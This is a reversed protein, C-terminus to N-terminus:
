YAPYARMPVPGHETSAMSRVVRACLAHATPLDQPYRRDLFETHHPLVRREDWRDNNRKRKGEQKSRESLAQAERGEDTIKNGTDDDARVRGTEYCILGKGVLEGFDANDQQHEADTQM